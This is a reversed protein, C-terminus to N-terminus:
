ANSSRAPLSEDPHDLEALARKIQWRVQKFAGIAGDGHQLISRGIVVRDAGNLVAKYPSDVRKQDDMHVPSTLTESRYNVRIGPTILVKDPFRRRFINVEQASCIFGDVYPSAMNAYRMMTDLLGDRIRLERHLTPEDISTLLLVGIIQCPRETQLEKQACVAGRKAAKLMESGGMAHVTVMTIGMMAAKYTTLEVTNPIDHWKLDLFVHKNKYLLTIVERGFQVFSISGIKFTSIMDEFNAIFNQANEFSLVDLALIIEIKSNM